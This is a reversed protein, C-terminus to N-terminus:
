RGFVLTGRPSSLHLAAASATVTSEGGLLTLFQQDVPATTCYAITSAMPGISLTNGSITYGGSARNCDARVAVKGADTLTLTFLSPDDIGLVAGDVGGISRLHWVANTDIAPSVIPATPVNSPGTTTGGCAVLSCASILALHFRVLHLAPTL